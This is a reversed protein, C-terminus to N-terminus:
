IICSSIVAEYDLRAVTEKEGPIQDFNGDFHLLVTSEHFKFDGSQWNCSLTLHSPVFSELRFSRLDM